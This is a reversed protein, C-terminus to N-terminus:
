RLRQNIGAADRAVVDVIESIEAVKRELKLAIEPRDGFHERAYSLAAIAEAQRKRWHRLVEMTAQLCSPLLLRDVQKFARSRLASQQPTM